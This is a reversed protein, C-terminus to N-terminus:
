VVEYNMMMGNDEHELIHCHLLYRQTGPFNHSFDVAIRVTEGPWVLVTDKFGMDTPLLGQANIALRRVQLPSNIRQLVQFQFGHIHMPHPMSMMGMGGSGYRNKIEWIETSGRSVKVPVQDMNFSLGNILWRMASFSLNFTRVRAGRTDIPSIDSLFAPVKKDYLIRKTVNIKLISFQSGQPLSSGGMMGGGMMGGGMMGGGTMGMNMTNFSLNKFWITEGYRSKSLDLLVDVREGPALFVESVKYPQELLGGDNGIITFPMQTFGKVFALRYIRANSGNLIRFRYTRSSVNLYPNSTLNTLITNGLFGSMSGMMQTQNYILNGTSSFTKDQIILPIDTQGFNLDLKTALNIDEDDEVIFYSALGFYAQYATRQHAHTHYWYTAARNQVQFDYPYEDGQAIQYSPHGDNKFDVHLGHWHTITPEPLENRMTTNLYDGKKIKIIPNIFTKGGADVKYVWLRTTKGPVISHNTEHATLTFPAAPEFVGLLGNDSPLRLPNGGFFFNNASLVSSSNLLLMGSAGGITKLFDRRSFSSM